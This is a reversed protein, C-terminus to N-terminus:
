SDSPLISHHRNVLSNQDWCKVTKQGQFLHDFIGELWLTGTATVPLDRSCSCHSTLILALLGRNVLFNNSFSLFSQSTPPMLPTVSTFWQDALCQCIIIRTYFWWAPLNNTESLKLLLLTGNKMTQCLCLQKHLYYNNNATWNYMGDCMLLRKHYQYLGQIFSFPENYSLIILSIFIPM